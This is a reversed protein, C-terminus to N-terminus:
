QIISLNGASISLLKDFILFVDMRLNEALPTGSDLILELSSVHQNTKSGTIYDGMSNLKSVLVFKDGEYESGLQYFRSKEANPGFVRKVEQWMQSRQDLDQQYQLFGNVRVNFKVNTGLPAYTIHKNPKTYDSEVNQPRFVCVLARLSRYNTPISNTFSQQGKSLVMSRHTIGNFSLEYPVSSFYNKITESTYYTAGLEMNTLQYNAPAGLSSTCSANESTYFIFETRPLLFLPLLQRGNAFLAGPMIQIPMDYSFTTQGERTVSSVQAATANQYYGYVGRQQTPDLIVNFVSQQLNYQDLDMVVSGGIKLMVRQFFSSALFEPAVNTAGPQGTVTVDFRVRLSLSIADENPLVITARSNQASLQGQTWRIRRKYSSIPVFPKSKPILETPIMSM